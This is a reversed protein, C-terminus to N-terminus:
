RRSYEIAAQLFPDYDESTTTPDVVIDPSLGQGDILHGNPTYWRAFTVHVASEDALRHIRQISGKGYSTEGILATGARDRLAGAVIESASATGGDLLLVVNAADVDVGPTAEFTQESGGSQREVLVPGGDLFRGSVAVASDLLGGPNGRLDLILIQAANDAQLEQLAQSLETDTLGSFRELRIYGYGAPEELARWTVSPLEIQAREVEFELTDDNRLVTLRVVTGEPGRILDTAIDIDALHPLPAGDIAVLIDGKIIGALAAPREIMPDLAIRGEEDLALYAGIGGFHGQLQEQERVAPEPEIFYTYPDDLTEMSGRIAGYTRTTSEPIDGIFDQKIINWAEDFLPMTNSIDTAATASDIGDQQFYLYSFFAGIMFVALAIVSGALYYWWHSASRNTTSM